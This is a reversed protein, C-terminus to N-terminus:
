QQMVDEEAHRAASTEKIQCQWCLGGEIFSSKSMIIEIVDAYHAMINVM